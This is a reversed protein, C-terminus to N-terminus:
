PRANIKMNFFKTNSDEEEKINVMHTCQKNRSWELMAMHVVCRKLRNRIDSEDPSLVWLDQAEDLRLIVELEM